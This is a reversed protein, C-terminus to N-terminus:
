KQVTFAVSSLISPVIELADIRVKSGHFSLKSEPVSPTAVSM